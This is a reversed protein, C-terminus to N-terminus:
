AWNYLEIYMKVIALIKDNVWSFQYVTALSGHGAVCSRSPFSVQTKLITQDNVSRVYYNFKHDVSWSFLFCASMQHDSASFFPGISFLRHPFPTTAKTKTLLATEFWLKLDLEIM